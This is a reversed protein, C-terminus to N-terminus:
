NQNRHEASSADIYTITSASLPGELVKISKQTFNGATHVSSLMLVIDYLIDAAILIHLPFMKFRRTRVGKFLSQTIRVYRGPRSVIMRQIQIGFHGQHKDRNTTQYSVTLPSNSTQTSFSLSPLFGCLETATHRKNPCDYKLERM